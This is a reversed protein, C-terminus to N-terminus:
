KALMVYCMDYNMYCMVNNMDSMRIGRSRPIMSKVNLSRLFSSEVYSVEVLPDAKAFVSDVENM